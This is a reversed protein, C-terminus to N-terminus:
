GDIAAFPDIVDNTPHQCQGLTIGPPKWGWCLFLARSFLLDIEPVSLQKRSVHVDVLIERGNVQHSLGTNHNSPMGFDRDHKPKPLGAELGNM